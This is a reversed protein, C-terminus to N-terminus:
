SGTRFLQHVVPIQEVREHLVRGIVHVELIFLATEDPDAACERLREPEVVWAVQDAAGVEVEEALLM